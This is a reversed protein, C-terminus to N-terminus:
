SKEKNKIDYFNELHELAFDYITKIYKLTVDKNDKKFMLYATQAVLSSVVVSNIYFMQEPLLGANNKWFEIMENFLKRRFELSIEIVKEETM